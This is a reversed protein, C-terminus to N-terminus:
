RHRNLMRFRGLLAHTLAHVDIEGDENRYRRLSSDSACLLKFAAAICEEHSRIVRLLDLRNHHSLDSFHLRDASVLVSTVSLGNCLKGRVDGRAKLGKILKYATPRSIGVRRCLETINMKPHRHWLEIFHRHNDEPLQMGSVLGVEM